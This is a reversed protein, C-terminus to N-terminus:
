ECINAKNVDAKADILIQLCEAHGNSAACYAPTQECINAKNVESKTDFLPQLCESQGEEVADIAPTSM